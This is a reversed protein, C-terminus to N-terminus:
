AGQGTIWTYGRVAVWVVLTLIFPSGIIWFYPNALALFIAAVALVLVVGVTWQPHPFFPREVTEEALDDGEQDEPRDADPDVDQSDDPRNM